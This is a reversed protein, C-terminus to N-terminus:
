NPWTEVHAYGEPKGWNPPPGTWDCSECRFESWLEGADQSLRHSLRFSVAEGGCKPCAMITYHTSM